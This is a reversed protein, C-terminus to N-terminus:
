IEGFLVLQKLKFRKIKNTSKLYSEKIMKVGGRLRYKDPVREEVYKEIEGSTVSSFNDYLAVLGLAHETDKDDPVGVVVAFKVAPHTLLEAEVLAPVIHLGQFLILDKIRDVIFFCFDEDYYVMDGTKIWGDDDFQDSSDLNHYGNMLARSKVRLEGPKNPGVAEGSELDVVKLSMGFGLIPTGVCGPKTRNYERHLDNKRFTTLGGAESQGYWHFIDVNPLIKQLGQHYKAPLLSGEIYITTLDRFDMNNPKGNEFMNVLTWPILYALNVKYKDLFFWAKKMDDEDPVILRCVGEKISCLLRLSEISWHLSDFTLVVKPQNEIWLNEFSFAKNCVLSYHNIYIGKPYGTSGSSFHIIATEQLDDVFIPMFKAEEEVPTFFDETFAVTSTNQQEEGILSKITELFDPTVLFLKPNITKMFHVIDFLPFTTDIYSPIAGILFSAIMPVCSNLNRKSFFTVLDGKKIGMKRLAIGTRISKLLLTNYTEQEDTAVNIQAIKDGNKKMFNFCYCGLGGVYKEDLPDHDTTIINNELRYM